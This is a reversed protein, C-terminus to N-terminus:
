VPSPAPGKGKPLKQPVLKANFNGEAVSDVFVSILKSKDKHHKEMWDMMPVKLLNKIARDLPRAGFAPDYGVGEASLEEIAKDSLVLEINEAERLSKSVKAVKSVAIKRMVDQTLSDYFAILDLRNQYEPPMKADIAKKYEAKAADNGGTGGGFGAKRQAKAEQAARAGFNSTMIIICNNFNVDRGNMLQLRGEDLVSLFINHAEAHAKDIEDLLLVCNPNDAVEELAAKKDFGVYGPPAGILKAKAHQDQFNGMDLTVLKVGLIDAIAKATETKGNGTPGVSLISAVPKNAEHMSSNGAKIIKIINEIVPQGLVREPLERELMAVQESNSKGFMHKPRKTIDSLVDILDTEDPMSRGAIKARSKASVLVDLAKGPQEGDSIFKSTWDVAKRVLATDLKDFGNRRVAEVADDASLPALKVDIFNDLLGPANEEAANRRRSSIEGILRLNNNEAIAPALHDKLAALPPIRGGIEGLEDLNLIIQAGGKANHEATKTLIKAVWDSFQDTLRQAGMKGDPAQTTGSYAKMERLKLRIIRADKLEAPVNGAIIRQALATTVTSKGIGEAGSILAHAREDRLLATLVRNTDEDRGVAAPKAAAAATLDEGFADFLKQLEGDLKVPPRKAPLTSDTPKQEPQKEVTVAADLTNKRREELARQMEALYQQKESREQMIQQAAANFGGILEQTAGQARLASDPVLLAHINNMTSSWNRTLLNVIQNNAEQQMLVSIFTPMGSDQQISQARRHEQRATFHEHAEHLTIDERKNRYIMLQRYYDLPVDQEPVDQMIYDFANIVDDMATEVLTRGRTVIQPAQEFLARIEPNRELNAVAQHFQKLSAHVRTHLNQREKDDATTM